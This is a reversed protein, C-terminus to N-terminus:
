LKREVVEILENLIMATAGWVIKNHVHFSPVDNLVFGEKFEIRSLQRNDSSLFHSFPVTLLDHVEAAQPVFVPRAATWGVFPFVRFNSVPIYLDTLPALVEINHIPANVEEFAERLATHQLSVDAPDLQGGPFSIQGRHRDNANAANREILVIEWDQEGPFFLVLVGAQRANEPVPLHKNRAIHAMRYQADKGPLPQGLQHRLHSIFTDMLSNYCSPCLGPQM